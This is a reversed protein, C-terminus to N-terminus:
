TWEPIKGNVTVIQAHPNAGKRCLSLEAMRWQCYHTIGDVIASGKAHSGGVSVCKYDGAEILRWAHDAALSREHLCAAFRIMGHDRTLEFVEGVSGAKHDCALPIPLELILGRPDLVHGNSSIAGSSAIGRIVRGTPKFEPLYYVEALTAQDIRVATKRKAAAGQRAAVASLYRAESRSM